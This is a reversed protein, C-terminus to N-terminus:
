RGNIIFRRCTYTYTKTTDERGGDIMGGLVEGVRNDDAFGGTAKRDSGAPLGGLEDATRDEGGVLEAGDDGMTLKSDVVRVEVTQM